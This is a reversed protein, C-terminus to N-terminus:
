AGAQNRNATPHYDGGRAYRAVRGEAAGLPESAPEGYVLSAVVVSRVGELLRDPNSRAEAQRELYAMGAGNGADLWDLFRPYGPPPVAPAIGVQDFGLRLAEAKLRETLEDLSM